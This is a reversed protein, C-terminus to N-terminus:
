LITSHRINFYNRQFAQSCSDRKVIKDYIRNWWIYSSKNPKPKWKCLINNGIKKNEILKHPDEDTFWIEQLYRRLSYMWDTDWFQIISNM